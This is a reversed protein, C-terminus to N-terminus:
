SYVCRNGYGEKLADRVRRWYGAGDQDSHRQFKGPPPQAPDYGKQQLYEHGPQRVQADFDPPEPPMQVPIM